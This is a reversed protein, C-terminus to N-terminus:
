YKIGYFFYKFLTNLHYAKYSRSNICMNKNPITLFFHLM